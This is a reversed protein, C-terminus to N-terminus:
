ENLLIRGLIGISKKVQSLLFDKADHTFGAWRLNSIDETVELLLMAKAQAEEFEEKSAPKLEDESLEPLDLKLKYKRVIKRFDQRSLHENEAKLLLEEQEEPMLDAVTRHHAFSLKEHRCSVQKAVWKDDALTQYDLGTMELAQTYMEGFHQEGYNLWDGIWFHVAGGAKKIFEGAQQWQEFSPTGIAEMGNKTLKFSSIILDKNM